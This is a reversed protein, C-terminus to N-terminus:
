RSGRSLRVSADGSSVVRTSGDHQRLVLRGASDVTEFSGEVDGGPLSIRVAAGVGASRALWRTRVSDFNRGGNWRELEDAMRQALNLFLQDPGVDLGLAALNAAPHAGEVPPHSNCNVGIGIVLARRGEGLEAGEVLIGAVKRGDCLVDNPWKLALREAAAPGATDVLAQYLAVAAALSITGTADAAGDADIVLLSAYLNGPPSSWARGRRGRGATQERAVIWLQGPDGERAAAFASANTSDVREHTQLRCGSLLPQNM